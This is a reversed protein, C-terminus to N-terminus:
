NDFFTEKKSGLIGQPRYILLLMLGVGVLIFRIAGSDQTELLDGLWENSIVMNIFGTFWQFVFWFAVAGLVPGWVRSYGGMIVIVYAYFTLLPMYTDPQISQRDIALLIGGMAGLAGGIMLSQLKYLFVNKGLSRSVDEDERISKIVRGWPSKILSQLLFTCIVVTAWGVLLTWLARESFSFNGIGYNGDPIPNINYFADAFRQIGFVSGTFPDAWSSRVIIRIIEAFAITVIALYDNRLRLTFSGLILGVVVAALIGIIVGVGLPLGREVSIATGYAGVLMSGAHGLNLLGTFGFQLNLGIGLLAYAAATLSVCTRLASVTIDVWEMLRDQGQIGPNGSSAVAFDRM